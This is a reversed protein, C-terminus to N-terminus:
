PAVGTMLRSALELDALEDVDVSRQRPMVYAIASGDDMKGSTLVLETRAAYIAGNLVYIMEDGSAAHALRGTPSRKRLWSAPAVATVSALCTAGDRLLAMAEDIDASTRLPSTPQLVVVVDPRYSEHDRLWELLHVIPGMGPADDTALAAPRMVPVQAGYEVACAAIAKDETSVITRTIAKSRIAAEITWAILPKGHLERLNKGPLRRSGARAPIIALVEASM